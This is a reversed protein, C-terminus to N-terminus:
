PRETRYPGAQPDSPTLTRSAEALASPTLHVDFDAVEYYKM